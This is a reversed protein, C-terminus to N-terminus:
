ENTLIDWINPGGAMLMMNYIYSVAAWLTTKYMLSVDGYLKEGVLGASLFAPSSSYVELRKLIVLSDLPYMLENKNLMHRNLM